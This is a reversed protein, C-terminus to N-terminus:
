CFNYQFYIYHYLYRELKKDEIEAQAARIFAIAEIQFNSHEQPSVFKHETDITM